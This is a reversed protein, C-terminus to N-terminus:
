HEQYLITNYGGTTESYEFVLITGCDFQFPAQMFRVTGSGLVTGLDADIFEGGTTGVVLTESCPLDLADVSLPGLIGTGGIGIGAQLLNAPVLLSEHLPEAPADAAYFQTDVATTSLNRFRIRVSDLSPPEPSTAPESGDGNDEGGDPMAVCGVWTSTMLLTLVTLVYKSRIKAKTEM